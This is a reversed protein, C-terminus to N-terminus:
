RRELVARVRAVLEDPSFPKKMYDDAVLITPPAPAPDTM